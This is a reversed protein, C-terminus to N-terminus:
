SPGRLWGTAPGGHWVGGGLVLLVVQRRRRGRSGRANGDQGTRCGQKRKGTVGFDRTRACKGPWRWCHNITECQLFKLRKWGPGGNRRHAAGPLRAGSRGRLTRACEAALHRAAEGTSRSSALPALVHQAAAPSRCPRAAYLMVTEVHIGEPLTLPVPDAGSLRLYRGAHSPRLKRCAAKAWAAVAFGADRAARATQEGV